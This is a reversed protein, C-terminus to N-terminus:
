FDVEVSWKLTTDPTNDNIGFLLGVGTSVSSEEGTSEGGLGGTYYFVPGLRHQNHDGFLHAEE